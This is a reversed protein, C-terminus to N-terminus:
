QTPTRPQTNSNHRKVTTSISLHCRTIDPSVLRYEGVMYSGLLPSFYQAECEEVPSDTSMAAATVAPTVAADNPLCGARKPRCRRFNDVGV